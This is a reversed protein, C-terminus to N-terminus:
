LRPSNDLEVGHVDVLALGGGRRFSGDPSPDEDPDTQDPDDDNPQDDLM